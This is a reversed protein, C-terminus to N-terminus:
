INPIWFKGNETKVERLGFKPLETEKHGLFTFHPQDNRVTRYWGHKALINQVREDAYEVVDFALLALHQSTGPAAVSYLISNNFSSNFYIGRKELELVKRVQEKIPMAKLAASQESSLRGNKTWYDCAPFFRSNWLRLTEEFSRRGAIAGDRPTINLGSKRAEERAKLLAEMASPQLEINTGAIESTAVAIQRQFKEVDASGSFICVPPPLVNEIVLFISGYDKLIRAAVADKENCLDDKKRNRKSLIQTLANQFSPLEINENSNNLATIKLDDTEINQGIKDKNNTLAFTINEQAMAATFFLLLMVFQAFIIKLFVQTM